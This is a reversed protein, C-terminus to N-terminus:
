SFPNGISARFCMIIMFPLSWVSATAEKRRIRVEKRCSLCRKPISWGRQEFYEQTVGSFIFHEGCCLCTFEQAVHITNRTEKTSGTM